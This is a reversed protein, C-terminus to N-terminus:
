IKKQHHHNFLLIEGKQPQKQVRRTQERVKVMFAICRRDTKAYSRRASTQGSNDIICKRPNRRRRKQDWLICSTRTRESTEDRTGRACPNEKIIRILIMMMMSITKDVRRTRLILLDREEEEEELRRRRRVVGQRKYVDSAASSRSQTSRPPRRIM